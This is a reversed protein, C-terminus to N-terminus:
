RNYGADSKAALIVELCADFSDCTSRWDASDLAPVAVVSIMARATMRRSLWSRTARCRVLDHDEKHAIRELREHM